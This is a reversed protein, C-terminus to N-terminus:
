FLYLLPLVPFIDYDLAELKEGFTLNAWDKLLESYFRISPKRANGRM